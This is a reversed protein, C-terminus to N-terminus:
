SLAAKIKPIVESPDVLEVNQPLDPILVRAKDHLEKPCVIIVPVNYVRTRYLLDATTVDVGPAPILKHLYCLVLDPKREGHILQINLGHGDVGNSIPLADYGEAVLATLWLSDTGAMYGILGPMNM